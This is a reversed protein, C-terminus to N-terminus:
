CRPADIKEDDKVYGEGSFDLFASWRLDDPTIMVETDGSLNQTLESFKRTGAADLFLFGAPVVLRANGAVSVTTPGKQWNLARLQQAFSAAASQQADGPPEAGPAPAAEAAWLPHFGCAALLVVYVLRRMTNM